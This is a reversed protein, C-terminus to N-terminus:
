GTPYKGWNTVPSTRTVVYPTPTAELVIDTTVPKSKYPKSWLGAVTLVLVIVMLVYSAMINGAYEQWASHISPPPTSPTSESDYLVRLNYGNAMRCIESGPLECNSPLVDVVCVPMGVVTRGIVDRSVQLVRSWHLKWM